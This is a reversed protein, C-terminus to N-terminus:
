GMGSDLQTCACSYPLYYPPLPDSVLTSAALYERWLSTCARAIEASYPSPCLHHQWAGGRVRPLTGGGTLFKGAVLDGDTGCVACRQECRCRGPVLDPSCNGHTRLKGRLNPVCLPAPRALSAEQGGIITFGDVPTITRSLPM